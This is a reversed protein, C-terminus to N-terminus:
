AVFRAPNLRSDAGLVVPEPALLSAIVSAGQLAIGAIAAIGAELFLVLPELVKKAIHLYRVNRAM